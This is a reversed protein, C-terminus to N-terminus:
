EKQKRTADKHSHLSVTIIAEHQTEGKGWSQEGWGRGQGGARGKGYRLM